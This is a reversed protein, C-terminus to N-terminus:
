DIISKGLKKLIRAQEKAKKELEYYKRTFPQFFGHVIGGKENSQTLLEQMVELQYVEPSHYQVLDDRGSLIQAVALPHDAAFTKKMGVPLNSDLYMRVARQRETNVINQRNLFRVFASTKRVAINMLAECAAKENKKPSIGGYIGAFMVPSLAVAGVAGLGVGTVVAGLGSLIMLARHKYAMGHMVRGVKNRFSEKGNLVRGVKSAEFDKILSKAKDM